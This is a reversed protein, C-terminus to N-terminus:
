VVTSHVEISLIEYLYRNAIIANGYIACAIVTVITPILIANLNTYILLHGLHYLPHASRKDYTLKTFSSDVWQLFSFRSTQLFDNGFTIPAQSPLFDAFTADVFIDLCLGELVDDPWTNDETADETM